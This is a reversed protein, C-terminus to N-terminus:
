TGFAALLTVGQRLTEEGVASLLREADTSCERVAARREEVAREAAIRYWRTQVLYDDYTKSPELGSNRFHEAFDESFRRFWCGAEVNDQSVGEGTSYIFGLEM